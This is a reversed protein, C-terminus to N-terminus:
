KVICSEDGSWQAEGRAHLRRNTERMLDLFRIPTGNLRMRERDFAEGLTVEALQLPNVRDRAQRQEPEWKGQGGLPRFNPVLGNDYHKLRVTGESFETVRAIQGPTAGKTHMRTLTENEWDGWLKRSKKNIVQPM